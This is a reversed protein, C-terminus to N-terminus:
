TVFYVRWDYVITSHVCQKHRILHMDFLLIFIVSLAIVTHIIYQCLYPLRIVYGQHKNLLKRM